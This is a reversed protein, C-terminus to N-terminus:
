MLWEDGTGKCQIYHGLMMGTTEDKGIVVKQQARSEENMDQYDISIIPLGDTSKNEYKIRFHGDKKLKAKVCVPCWPRYPLHTVFHNRVDEASPMVRAKLIQPHREGRMSSM